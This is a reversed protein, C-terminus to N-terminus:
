IVGRAWIEDACEQSCAQYNPIPRIDPLIAGCEFCRGRNLKANMRINRVAELLKGMSHLIPSWFVPLILIFSLSSKPSGLGTVM